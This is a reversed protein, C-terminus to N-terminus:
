YSKAPRQVPLIEGMTRVRREIDERESNSITPAGFLLIHYRTKGGVREAVLIFSVDAYTNNRCKAFNGTSWSFGEGSGLPALRMTGELTCNREKYDTLIEEVKKKFPSLTLAFVAEYENRELHDYIVLASTLGAIYESKAQQSWAPLPAPTTFPALVVPPSVSPKASSCGTVLIALVLVLLRRLM